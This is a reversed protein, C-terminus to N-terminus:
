KRRKNNSNHYGAHVRGVNEAMTPSAQWRGRGGCQCSWRYGKGGLHEEIAVVHARATMSEISRM